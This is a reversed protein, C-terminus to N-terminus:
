VMVSKALKELREFLLKEWEEKPIDKGCKSCKVYKDGNPAITNHKCNKDMSNDLDLLAPLKLVAMSLM